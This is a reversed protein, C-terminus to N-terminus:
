ETKKTRFFRMVGDNCNEDTMRYVTESSSCTALLKCGVCYLSEVCKVFIEWSNSSIDELCCNSSSIPLERVM